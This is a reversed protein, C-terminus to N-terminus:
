DAEYIYISGLKKIIHYGPINLKQDSLADIYYDAKNDILFRSFSEASVYILPVAFKAEKKLCWTVAPDYDSYIVKSQYSPDYVTLWDCASQIQVGYGQKPTHGTYVATAYSLLVLGVILYLGWSKLREQKIKFKYKEIITSLGLTIFYAMAPTMTIFYRDVKLPIISHFIFFAFFWSLFLFDIELKIMGGGKLLRYGAYFAALFLVETLMYPATFFSLVGLVLLTVMLILWVMTKNRKMNGTKKLIQYLYLVLGLVVIIVLMYSLISPFGQSPNQIQRYTGQLPGIAIYNLINYLFYLKDPNYGLDNAAAGSGM